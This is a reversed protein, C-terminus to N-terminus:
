WENFKNVPTLDKRDFKYWNIFNMYWEIIIELYEDTEKYGQM